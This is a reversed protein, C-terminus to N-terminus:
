ITWDAGYTSRSVQKCEAKEAVRNLQIMRSVSLEGLLKTKFVPLAEHAKRVTAVREMYLRLADVTKSFKAPTTRFQVFGENTLWLKCFGYDGLMQDFSKTEAKLKFHRLILQPDLFAEFAIANDDEKLAGNFYLGSTRVSGKAAKM